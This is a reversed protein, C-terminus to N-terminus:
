TQQYVTAALGCGEDHFAYIAGEGWAVESTDVQGLFPM